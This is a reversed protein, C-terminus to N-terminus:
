PDWGQRAAGYLLDPNEIIRFGYVIETRTNLFATDAHCFLDVEHGRKALERAWPYGRFHVKFRRHNSILAIRLSAVHQGRQPMRESSSVTISPKWPQESTM